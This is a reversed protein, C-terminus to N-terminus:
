VDSVNFLTMLEAGSKELKAGKRMEKKAAGLIDGRSIRADGDYCKTSNIKINRGSERHHYM